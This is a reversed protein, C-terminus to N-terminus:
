MMWSLGSHIVGEGLRELGLADVVDFPGGGPAVISRAASGGSARKQDRREADECVRVSGCTLSKPRATSAHSSAAPRVTM